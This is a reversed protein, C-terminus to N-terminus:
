WIDGCNRCLYGETDDIRDGIHLDLTGDGVYRLNLHTIFEKYQDHYDLKIYVCTVGHFPLTVEIKKDETSCLENATDYILVIGYENCLDLLEKTENDNM